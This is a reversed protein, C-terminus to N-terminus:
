QCGRPRPPQSGPCGSMPQPRCSPVPCCMQPVPFCPRCPGCPGCPCPGCPCMPPPCCCGPMCCNQTTSAGCSMKSIQVSFKSNQSLRKFFSQGSHFSHGAQKTVRKLLSVWVQVIKPSKTFFHTRAYDFMIGQKSLWWPLKKTIKTTVM